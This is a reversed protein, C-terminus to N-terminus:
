SVPFCFITSTKTTFVVALVVEWTRVNWLNLLVLVLQVRRRKGSTLLSIFQGELGGKNYSLHAQVREAASSRLGERKVEGECNFNEVNWLAPGSCVLKGIFHKHSNVVYSFM